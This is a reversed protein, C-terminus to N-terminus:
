EWHFQPLRRPPERKERPSSCVKESHANIGYSFLPAARPFVRSPVLSPGTLVLKTSFLFFYQFFQSSSLLSFLSSQNADATEDLASIQRHHYSPPVQGVRRGGYVVRLKIMVLIHVMGFPFTVVLWYLAFLALESHASGGLFGPTSGCIKLVRVFFFLFLIFSSSVNKEHFCFSFLPIFLSFLFFLPFFPFVHFYM